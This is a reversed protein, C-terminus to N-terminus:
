ERYGKQFLKGLCAARFEPMIENLAGAPVSIQRYCM